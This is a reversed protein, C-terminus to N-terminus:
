EFKTMGETMFQIAFIFGKRFCDFGKEYNFDLEKGSLEQFEEALEGTLKKEFQERLRYYEADIHKYEPTDLDRMESPYIQGNFLKRLIDAM